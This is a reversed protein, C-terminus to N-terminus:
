KSPREGFISRGLRVLTSGFEIADEYDDSMGMSLKGLGIRKAISAVQAFCNRRGDRDVNPAVTM